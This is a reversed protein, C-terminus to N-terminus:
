HYMKDVPLHRDWECNKISQNMTERLRDKM